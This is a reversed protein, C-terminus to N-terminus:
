RDGDHMAPRLPAVIEGATNGRPWRPVFRLFANAIHGSFFFFLVDGGVTLLRMLIAVVAADAIPAVPTLGLVMVTERIGLGSPPGPTMVGAVWGAAFLAIVAPWYGIDVSDGTVLHTVVLLILGCALMFATHLSIVSWLDVIRRESIQAAVTPWRRWLFGPAVRVLVVGLVAAGALVALLMPLSVSETQIGAVTLGVIVIVGSAFLLSLIEFTISLILSTHSWGAKRGAVHRGFFQVVNGPIYKALQAKAYIDRSRDPDVNEEGSWKLLNMWAWSLLLSAMAYVLAAAALLVLQSTGLQFTPMSQSQSWILAGIFGISLLSLCVGTV